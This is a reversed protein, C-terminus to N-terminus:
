RVRSKSTRDQFFSPHTTPCVESRKLLILWPDSSPSVYEAQSSNVFNGECYIRHSDASSWELIGLLHQAAHFLSKLQGINMVTWAISAENWASENDVRSGRHIIWSCANTLIDVEIIALAETDEGETWQVAPWCYDQRGLPYFVSAVFGRMDIGTTFQLRRLTQDIASVANTNMHASITRHVPNLDAPSGCSETKPLKPIRRHVNDLVGTLYQIDSM